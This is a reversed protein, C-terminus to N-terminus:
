FTGRHSQARLCNRAQDGDDSRRELDRADKILDKVVSVLDDRTQEQAKEYFIRIRKFELEVTSAYGKREVSFEFRWGDGLAFRVARRAAPAVRRM